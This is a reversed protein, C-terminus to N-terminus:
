GAFTVRCDVLRGVAEVLAHFESAVLPPMPGARHVALTIQPGSTAGLRQESAIRVLDSQWPTEGIDGAPQATSRLGRGIVEASILDTSAILVRQGSWEAIQVLLAPNAQAANDVIEESLFPTVRMLLRKRRPVFRSWIGLAYLQDVQAPDPDLLLETIGIVTQGSASEQPFEQGPERAIPADGSRTLARRVWGSVRGTPTEPNLSAAIIAVDTPSDPWLDSLYSVFAARMPAWESGVWIDIASQSNSM